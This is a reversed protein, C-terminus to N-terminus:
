TKDAKEIKAWVVTGEDFLPSPYPVAAVGPQLTPSYQVKMKRTRGGPTSLRVTEGDEVNHKEADEPNLELSPEESVMNLSESRSSLVGSQFLSARKILQFPHGDAKKTVATGAVPILQAKGKPFGTAYLYPSDKPWQEGDKIGEYYHNLRGIEEFIVEQTEGPIPSELLRLLQVFIDFDSKSEGLPSRLPHIKQVRRELSTYTGSKEVFACAPLVVHAMKATETMFLDHVVVLRLKKMGEASRDTDTMLPDHGVLYLAKLKEEKAKQLFEKSGRGGKKQFIGLDIAGQSNCKELLM